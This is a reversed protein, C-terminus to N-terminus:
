APAREAGRGSADRPLSLCVGGRAPPALTGPPFFVAADEATLWFQEARFSRRLRAPWDPYAGLRGAREEMQRSLAPLLARRRRRAPPLCGRLALPAGRDLSWTDGQRLTRVDGGRQEQVEWWLSLLAPTQLTVACSLRATWPAFPRSRSLAEEEASCAQQFLPGNWRALWLRALRRYYREVPPLGRGEGVLHPLTLSYSLIARGERSLTREEGLPQLLLSPEPKSRHFM